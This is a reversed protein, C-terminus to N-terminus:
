KIFSEEFKIVAQKAVDPLQRFLDLLYKEDDTLREMNHENTQNKIEQLMGIVADINRLNTGHADYTDNQSSLFSNNEPIEAKDEWGILYGPNVGLAHAMIKVKDVPISEIKGTVYKQLLGYSIQTRESFQRYTWKKNQFCERLRDNIIAM